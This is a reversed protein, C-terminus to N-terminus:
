WPCCCFPCFQHKPVLSVSTFHQLTQQQKITGGRLYFSFTTTTTTWSPMSQFSEHTFCLFWFTSILRQFLHLGEPHRMAHNLIMESAEFTSFLAQPTSFMSMLPLKPLLKRNHRPELRMLFILADEVLSTTFTLEICFNEDERTLLSLLSVGFRLM